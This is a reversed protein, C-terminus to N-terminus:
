GTQVSPQSPPLIRFAVVVFLEAQLKELTQIFDPNELNTPQFIPLGYASAQKKVASPRIKLGRGVPKDPATLVGVIEHRSNQLIELSPVAFEPTGMFLIKM